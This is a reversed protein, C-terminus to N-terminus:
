RALPERKPSEKLHSCPGAGEAPCAPELGSPALSGDAPKGGGITTPWRVEDGKREPRPVSVSLEFACPLGPHFIYSGQPMALENEGSLSGNSKRLVWLLSSDLARPQIVRVSLQRSPLTRFRVSWWRVVRFGRVEQTYNTGWHM